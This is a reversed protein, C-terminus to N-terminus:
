PFRRITYGEEVIAAEIKPADAPEAAPIRVKGTELDITVDAGPRVSRAAATVARICHQCTMGDVTLELM